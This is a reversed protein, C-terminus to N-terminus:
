MGSIETVFQTMGRVTARAVLTFSPKKVGFSPSVWGIIPNVAGRYLESNLRSDFHIKLRKSENLAEFLCRGAQRVQCKEGFHFFIEIEHIGRCDMRDTVILVRSKGFLRLTRVHIVPDALRRYGDHSGTVETFEDAVDAHEVSCVAPKRWLFRGGPVSQDQRDVRVTNHAGTGRFYSRWLTSTYYCYTGPDILFQRGGYSLCFSLADAHGHAYLPGLGLPGADFVVVIENAGRRDNSLIYYGGYPFAQLSDKSSPLLNIPVDHVRQGWLLLWYRLDEIGAGDQGGPKASNQLISNVREQPTQPLSVVQGSDGDGFMPLNGDRDSIASLFAVMRNIGAWYQQPFPDGIRHGLAGALLFFELIFLQYEVAREKGTGDPEVQRAMEEILKQRAFSRWKSSEQYLPWFVSGVYLGTMEGILHNNASSHKSYFKSIFYQHQYIADRLVSDVTETTNCRNLVFRALAWSIIRIGAELPSKWNLGMMFSNHEHWSFTQKHIERYYAEFGTWEFALALLVFHQLRNLEWVYKVDGIRGQDRYNILASYKVPATKGSSYDRHWDISEGLSINDLCFFSVRHNLWQNANAIVRRALQKPVAITQGDLSPLMPTVKQQRRGNQTRRQVVKLSARLTLHRGVDAVRSILEAPEMAQLRNKVWAIGPNKDMLSYKRYLKLVRWLCREM